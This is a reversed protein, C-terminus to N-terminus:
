QNSYYKQVVTLLRDPAENSECGYIGRYFDQGDTLDDASIMNFIVQKNGDSDKKYLLIGNGIVLHGHIHSIYSLARRKMQAQRESLPESTIFPVRQLYHTILEGNEYTIEHESEEDIRMKAYLPVHGGNEKSLTCYIQAKHDISLYLDEDKCYYLEFNKMLNNNNKNLLFSVRKLHPNM